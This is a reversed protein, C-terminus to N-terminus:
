LCNRSLNHYQMTYTRMGLLKPFTMERTLAATACLCEKMEIGPGSDAALHIRFTSYFGLTGMRSALAKQHQSMTATHMM